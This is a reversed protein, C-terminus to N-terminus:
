GDKRGTIIVVCIVSVTVCGRTIASRPIYKRRLPQLLIRQLSSNILCIPPLPFFFSFFFVIPFIYLFSFFNCAPTTLPESEFRRGDMVLFFSVSSYILSFHSLLLSFISRILLFTGYSVIPRYHIFLGSWHFDFCVPESSFYVVWFVQIFSFCPPFHSRSSLSLARCIVLYPYISFSFSLMCVRTTSTGPGTM